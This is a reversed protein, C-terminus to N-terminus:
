PIPRIGIDIGPAQWPAQSDGIVPSSAREAPNNAQYSSVRSEFGFYGVEGRPFSPQGAQATM